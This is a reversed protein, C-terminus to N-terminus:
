KVCDEVASQKTFARLMYTGKAKEPARVGLTPSICTVGSDKIIALGKEDLSTESVMDFVISRRYLEEADKMLPPLDEAKGLAPRAWALAMASALASAGAVMFERRTATM